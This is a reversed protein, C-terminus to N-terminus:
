GGGEGVAGSPRRTICVGGYPNVVSGVSNDMYLLLYFIKKFMGRPINIRAAGTYVAWGPFWGLFIM